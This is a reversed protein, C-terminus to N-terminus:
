VLKINAPILFAGNFDEYIKKSASLIEKNSYTKFQFSGCVWHMPTFYERMRECQENFLSVTNEPSEGANVNGVVTSYTMWFNMEPTHALKIPLCLPSVTFDMDSLNKDVGMVVLLNYNRPKNGSPKNSSPKFFDFFSM